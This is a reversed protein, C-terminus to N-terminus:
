KPKSAPAATPETAPQIPAIKADTAAAGGRLKEIYNLEGLARKNGPESDLSERYAAAADDLRGLETLSFGRGRLLIARVPGKLGSITLAKDYNALADPWRKLAMLSAGRESMMLPTHAGLGLDSVQVAAPVALGLDLVRLADESKGTENYYSALYISIPPYPNEIAVSKHKANTKDGAMAAMAVLAEGTGDTLLYVTGDKATFSPSFSTGTEALVRELDVVHAAVGRLGATKLDATTADYVARAGDWPLAPGKSPVERALVGTALGGSVVALALIMAMFLKM